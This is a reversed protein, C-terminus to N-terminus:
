IKKTIKFKKKLHSHKLNIEKIHIEIKLITYVMVIKIYEKKLDKFHILKKLVIIKHGM